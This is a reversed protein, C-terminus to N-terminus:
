RQIVMSAYGDPDVLRFEGQPAYFRRELPGVAVGEAVLAAHTAAVDECYMYFLIGQLAGDLPADARAVMLKAGDSELWAWSLDTAGPPVFTDRVDFGLKRYFAISASVDKVHAMPVLSKM